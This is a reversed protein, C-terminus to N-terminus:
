GHRLQALTRRHNFTMLVAVTFVGFAVIAVMISLFSGGIGAVAGEVVDLSTSAMAIFHLGCVGVIIGVAKQMLIGAGSGELSLAWSFAGAGLLLGFILVFPDYTPLCNMLASMGTMHMAGVGLGAIVGLGARIMPADFFVTAAVPLGILLVGVAASVLTVTLDYTLAADPRYGIMAVFHTTWVGVGAVVALWLAAFLRQQHSAIDLNRMLLLLTAATLTCVGAAAAIFNPRTELIGQILTVIV